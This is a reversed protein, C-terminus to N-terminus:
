LLIIEHKPPRQLPTFTIFRGLSTIHPLSNIDANILVQISPLVVYTRSPLMSTLM